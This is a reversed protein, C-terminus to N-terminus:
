LNWARLDKGIRFAVHAKVCAQLVQDDSLVNNDWESMSIDHDLGVGYYGLREEVIREVSAQVLSEGDESEVYRRLDLLRHIQLAHDSRMLMVEDSGNHIGVFTNRRDMLFRRLFRPVTTAATLQFILCRCGVCLQLTDAGASDRNDKYPYWQVGVGVVLKGVYSRRHFITASLWKRVVSASSTVTVSINHGFFNVTHMRRNGAYEEYTIEPAM